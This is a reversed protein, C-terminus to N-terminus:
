PFNCCKADKIRHWDASELAPIVETMRTKLEKVVDKIYRVDSRGNKNHAVKM